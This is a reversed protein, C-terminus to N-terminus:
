EPVAARRWARELVARMDPSLPVARRNMVQTATDLFRNLRFLPADPAAGWRFPPLSNIPAGGGFVNCGAGIVAGTSLLTGIGTKVHDGLFCGLKTIGSSVAGGDTHVRVDRYDNRLDSNTTGAGLNVWRGLCARGLYGEHAKNDYGLLVSKAIDGRIRCVPGVHSASVTGGLITSDRGVYLPGELRAPGRVRVGEALVIPGRATDLLVGPEVTTGPGLSILGDGLLHVGPPLSSRPLPAGPRDGAASAGGTTAGSAAGPSPSAVMGAELDERLQAPTRTVLEWVQELVFGGLELRAETGAAAAPDALDRPHPLPAGPPLSWGVRGGDIYLATPVEPLSRPPDQVVARSCMLIRHGRTGVDTADLARPGGDERFGALHAAALHGGYQVGWARAAREWIRLAGLVLEAGPRTLGFPEWQRARADDFLFLRTTM